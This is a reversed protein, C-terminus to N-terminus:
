VIEADVETATSSGSAHKDGGMLSYIRSAVDQPNEITFGGSLAAADYLLQVKGKADVSDLAVLDALSKVISHNPNIELVRRGKMYEAARPDGMAQARMIREM